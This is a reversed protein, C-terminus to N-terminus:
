LWELIAALTLMALYTRALKKHLLRGALLRLGPRRGRSLLSKSYLALGPREQFGFPEEKSRLMRLGTMAMGPAAPSEFHSPVVLGGNGYSAGQGPAADRELVTVRFGRRLRADAACLGVVGSGIVVVRKM